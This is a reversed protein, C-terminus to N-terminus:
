NIVEYYNYGIARYAEYEKIEKIVESLNDSYLISGKKLLRIQKSIQPRKNNTNAKLSKRTQV